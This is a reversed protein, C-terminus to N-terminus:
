EVAPAPLSQINGEFVQEAILRAILRNGEPSMHGYIRGDEHMVWLRKYAEEGENEYVTHLADYTDVLTLNQDRICKLLRTRDWGLVSDMAETAGYQVIIATQLGIRDRLQALRGMLMCTIEMGQSASSAWQYRSNTVWWQLVDLRIMAYHVLYSYGFIGRLWGLDSYTAEKPVPVNHLTLTGNEIQFYPKPVGSYVKLATYLSTIGTVEVLLTRPKLIPILAEARLTTQDISYGGVAANIVQLHIMNELQAPWAEADSVDSGVTLSDGVALVGNPMLDRIVATPMRVGWRGTTFTGDSKLALNENQVWGLTPDYRNGVGVRLTDLAHSVFNVNSFVPVGVAIRVGGELIALCLATSAAILSIPGWSVKM